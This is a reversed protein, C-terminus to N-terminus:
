TRWRVGLDLVKKAYEVSREMHERQQYQIAAAFHPPLNGPLDEVVIPKEYPTGRKALAVFSAFEFARADPYMKWFDQDLYPLLQPPRGTIPKVYAYVDPRLVRLRAVFAHFDVNGEGLPVWAVMAGRQREYIATDRLHVCLAYPGLVELTVLPDEVVFVPNGSDLYSGVWERGAGEIVERMEWAQLDKHNEIAIKIGADQFNSQVSKLLTIMSQINQAMPVPPLHARDSAHLCRLLPSGCAKARALGTLLQDRSTTVSAGPQPLVAGIGTEIHLGLQKAYSGLERWHELKDREPDLSDQLFVGDLKLSAAYELLQKDTWRMARLSYSNLGLKQPPSSQSKSFPQIAAALTTTQLFARRNMSRHVFCLVDFRNAAGRRLALPHRWRM